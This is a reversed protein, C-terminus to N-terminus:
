SRIGYKQLMSCCWATKTFYEVFDLLSLNTAVCQKIIYISSLSTDRSELDDINLTELYDRPPIKHLLFENTLSHPCKPRGGFFM